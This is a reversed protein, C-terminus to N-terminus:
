SKAKAAEWDRETKEGNRESEMKGKIKDGAIKGKYKSTFKQGNRERTYTFSIEDKELKADAIPNEANDRGLIVGTLKEGELKLKLVQERKQDNITIEWKWTGTPDIKPKDESVASRSGGFMLSAVWAVMMLRYMAMGRGSFLQRLDSNRKCAALANPGVAMTACAIVGFLSLDPRM